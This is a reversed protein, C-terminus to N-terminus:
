IAVESVNLSAFYKPEIIITVEKFRGFDTEDYRTIQNRLTNTTTFTFVFGNNTTSTVQILENPFGSIKLLDINETTIEEGPALVVKRTLSESIINPITITTFGPTDSDRVYYVVSGLNKSINVSGTTNTRGYAVVTCKIFGNGMDQYDPTPFIYASDICPASDAPLLADGEKFAFYDADAKAAIYDQQIMCLGSSFSKVIRNPQKIWRASSKKFITYAM